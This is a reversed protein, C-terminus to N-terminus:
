EPWIDIPRRMPFPHKSDPGFWQDYIRKFSGDAAMDQIAANILHRWASDNQPLAVAVEQVSHSTPMLEYRSPSQSAYELLTMGSDLWAAVKEQGLELFCAPGDPLSIVHKGSMEDGAQELIKVAMMEAFSGHVAAIRNGKLDAIAKFRGKLVMLHPSDFFYPVSFDFERESTRSHIIRCLAADISGRSLMPGWTRENVKIIEVKLNMHRAMEAVLDVEFGVWEGSQNFFGQPILNYPAGIRMTGIKMVRNYVTGCQGEGTTLTLLVSVLAVFVIRWHAL